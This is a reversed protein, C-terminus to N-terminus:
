ALTGMHNCLNIAADLAASYVIDEHNQALEDGILTTVPIHRLPTVRRVPKASRLEILTHVTQADAHAECTVRGADGELSISKLQSRNARPTLLLNITGAAARLETVIGRESRSPEATTLQWGLRTMLWGVLLMSGVFADPDGYEIAVDRITPLLACANSMDFVQAILQRWSTLAVWQLDSFRVNGRHQDRISRLRQLAVFPDIWDRSDVMVHDVADVFHTFPRTDFTPEGHWWLAVPLGPKLLGLALSMLREGDVGGGGLIIQEGCSSASGDQGCTVHVDAFPDGKTPEITIMRGPHQAAVRAIQERLEPSPRGPVFVLLNLTRVLTAGIGDGVSLREWQQQLTREILSNKVAGNSDAHITIMTM